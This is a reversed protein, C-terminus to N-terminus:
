DDLDPSDSASLVEDDEGIDAYDPNLELQMPGSAADADGSGTVLAEAASDDAAGYDYEWQNNAKRAKSIGARIEAAEPHNRLDLLRDLAAEGYEGLSFRMYGYDFEVAAVEGSALRSEQSRASMAWPNIITALAILVAIWMM